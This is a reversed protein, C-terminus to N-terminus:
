KDTSEVTPTINQPVKYSKGHKKKKKKGIRVSLKGGFLLLLTVAVLMILGTYFSLWILVKSAVEM